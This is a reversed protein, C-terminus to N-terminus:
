LPVCIVGECVTVQGGDSNVEPELAQHQLVFADLQLDPVGRPLLSESGDSAGVVLACLADEQDIVDVIALAKLVNLYEPSTLNLLIPLFIYDNTDQAILGVGLLAPLHRELRGGEVCLFLPKGEILDTRLCAVLDCLRETM